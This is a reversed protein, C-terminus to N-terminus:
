KKGFFSLLNSQQGSAKSKPKKPVPDSKEAKKRSTYSSSAPPASKKEEKKTRTVTYGDEDVYTEIEPEVSIPRTNVADAVEEEPAQEIELKSTKPSDQGKLEVTDVVPSAVKKEVTAEAFDDDMDFDDDDDFLKELEEQRKEKEKREEELEIKSKKPLHGEEIDDVDVSGVIVKEVPRKPENKRSVYQYKPKAQAKPETKANVTKRSVYGSKLGTDVSKTESRSAVRAVPERKPERKPESVPIPRRIGTDLFVIEPGKIPLVQKADCPTVMENNCLSKLDPTSVSLSYIHESEIIEFSSKTQSLSQATSLQITLRTGPQASAKGILVYTAKVKELYQDRYESLERKADDISINTERSLTRYSIVRKESFLENSLFESVEQKM